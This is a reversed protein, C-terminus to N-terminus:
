DAPQANTDGADFFDLMVAAVQGPWLDLFGAGWDPFDRRRGNKLLADARRSHRYLDDNINMVLVPQPLRSLKRAYAETYHFAARHGWEYHDGGRLNEAMSEAAIELTMGPGRYHMIRQWMIRFREGQEDLPIPAFYQHYDAVEQPTFIPASINILREVAHPRQHAAEVAVMSGTHYGVINVRSLEFHDIVEWVARTYDEISVAPVAPPHDSEGYGPYDPAIVLRQRALQPMLRAFSRGSKSIMHLCVIAPKDTARGASRLHMQGYGADIFGRRVPPVAM